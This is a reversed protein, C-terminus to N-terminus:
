TALLSPTNEKNWHLGYVIKRSISLPSLNVIDQFCQQYDSFRQRLLRIMLNSIHTALEDTLLSQNTLQQSIEILKEICEKFDSHDCSPAYTNLWYLLFLREEDNRLMFEKELENSDLLLNHIFKIEPVGELSTLNFLRALRDPDAIRLHNKFKPNNNDESQENFLFLCSKTAIQHAFNDGKPLHKVWAPESGAKRSAQLMGDEVADEDSILDDRFSHGTFDASHKRMAERLTPFRQSLAEFVMVDAANVEGQTAPLSLCLRNIIRVVDRPPRSLKTM